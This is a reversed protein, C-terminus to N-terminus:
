LQTDDAYMHFPIHFMTIIVGLPLTYKCYLDPGLGSGQPVCCELVKKHSECDDVVVSQTRGTLYTRFWDLAKDEIRFMKELRYLLICHDVTDFVASLDLFGMLIVKQNDAKLLLDSMIKILATETSHHCRYASQLNECLNHSNTHDLLQISVAKEIIKSLFPLNSVPRFNKFTPVCKACM